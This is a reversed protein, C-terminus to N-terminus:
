LFLLTVHLLPPSPPVPPSFSFYDPVANERRLINPLAFIPAAVAGLEFFYVIDGAEGYVVGHYVAGTLVATAVIAIVDAALVLPGFANRVAMAWRRPTTMELLHSSVSM